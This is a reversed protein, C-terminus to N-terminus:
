RIGTDYEIQIHTPVAGAAVSVAVSHATGLLGQVAFPTVTYSGAPMSATWRGDSGSTARTVEHGASDSVVLVAGAVPQPACQGPRPSAPEVPCTPGALAQGGIEYIPGALAPTCTVVAILILSFLFLGRM